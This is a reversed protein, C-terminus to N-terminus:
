SHRMPRIFRHTLTQLPVVGEYIEYMFYLKGTKGSITDQSLATYDCTYELTDGKNIFTSGTLKAPEGMISEADALTLLKSAIGATDTRTLTQEYVNTRAQERMALLGILSLAYLPFSNFKM